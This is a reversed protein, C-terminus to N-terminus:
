RQGHSVLMRGSVEIRLTEDTTSLWQLIMVVSQHNENVKRMSKGDIVLSETPHIAVSTGPATQGVYLTGYGMWDVPDNIPEPLAGLALADNELITIGWALGLIAQSAGAAFSTMAIAGRIRRVTYDGFIGLGSLSAMTGATNLDISVAAVTTLTETSEFMRWTYRPRSRAPGPRRAIRSRTTM